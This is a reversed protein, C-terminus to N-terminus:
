IGRLHPSWSVFFSLGLFLILATLLVNFTTKQAPTIVGKAKYVLVIVLVLVTFTVTLAWLSLLKVLLTSASLRALLNPTTSVVTIEGSGLRADFGDNNTSETYLDTSRPTGAPLLTMETADEMTM